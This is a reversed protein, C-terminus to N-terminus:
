AAARARAALDVLAQRLDALTAVPTPFDLRAFTAGRRLDCGDPDIGSLTWGDGSRGLMVRAYLRVAEAHDGNMYNLVSAEAAGIAEATAAPLRIRDGDVWVARAFGGVYHARAVTMRYVHFDAFGAYGAAAPHRALFRRRHRDDATRALTGLVGVRPGTQPNSLRTATEFLLSARPDAALNRTHDSLESLLLLPAGDTDCAVTVLSAYPWGRDNALATALAASRVRRMLRRVDDGIM